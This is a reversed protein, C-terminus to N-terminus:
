YGVIKQKVKDTTVLIDCFVNDGVQWYTMPIHKMHNYFQMEFNHLIKYDTKDDHSVFNHKDPEIHM